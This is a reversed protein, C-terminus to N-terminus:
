LLGSKALLLGMYRLLWVGSYIGALLAGKLLQEFLALAEGIDRTGQLHRGRGM